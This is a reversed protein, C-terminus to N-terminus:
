QLHADSFRVRVQDGLDALIRRAAEIDSGPSIGVDLYGGENENWSTVVISVDAHKLRESRAYVAQELRQIGDESLRSNMFDVSVSPYKAAVRQVAADFAGPNKIRYVTLHRNSDCQVIKTLIGRHQRAAKRLIDDRAAALTKDPGAPLCRTVVATKTMATAPVSSTSPQTSATDSRADCGVMLFGVAAVAVLSRRAFCDQARM